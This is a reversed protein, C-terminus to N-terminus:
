KNEKIYESWDVANSCEHCYKCHEVGYMTDEIVTGCVECKYADYYEYVFEGYGGISITTKIPKKPKEKERFQELEKIAIGLKLCYQVYTNSLGDRLCTKSKYILKEVFWNLEDISFKSDVRHILEHEELTMAKINKVIEKSMMDLYLLRDIDSPKHGDWVPANDLVKCDFLNWYPEINYHYTYQGAPTDIGVIFMNEFMTGDHHNLSKWAQEKHGKVIVSFLIARHHYLDNFTHYGDSIDKTRVIKLKKFLKILKNLLKTIM